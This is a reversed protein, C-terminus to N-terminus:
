FKNSFFRDDQWNASNNAIYNTIKQFSEENRIIHEYFGPQWAFPIHHIRTYKTVTSKFGRIISALNKSQPGFQNKYINEGADGNVNNIADDVTKYDDLIGFYDITKTNYKNTGITIIAHFHNPMIVYEGMQLNMDKRIEFTKLWETEIRKGIESLLAIGNTIEGFFHERNQTCVTVFYCANSSYNWHQLRASSVRYKQQFKEPM